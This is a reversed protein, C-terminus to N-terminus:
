KRGSSFGCSRRISSAPRDSGYSRAPDVQMQREIEAEAAVGLEGGAAKALEAEAKAEEAESKAEELESEAVELQGQLRQAEARAAELAGEARALEAIM